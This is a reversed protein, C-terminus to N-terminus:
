ASLRRKVMGAMGLLGTAVLVMSSPEPTVAAAAPAGLSAGSTSTTLNYLNGAFGNLFNISNNGNGTYGVLTATPFIFNFDITGAANRIDAGYGNGGGQRSFLGSGQAKINTQTTSDPASIIINSQTITGATTDITLTGGINAGDTFSGSLSFVTDAKAALTFVLLVAPLLLRSLRM